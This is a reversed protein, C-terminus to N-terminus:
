VENKLQIYKSLYRHALQSNQELMVKIPNMISDNRQMMNKVHNVYRTGYEIDLRENIEGNQSPFEWRTLAPASLCQVASRKFEELTKALYGPFDLGDLYVGLGEGGIPTTVVPLDMSIADLIKGKVGAGFRLPALLVEYEAMTSFVDDVRGKIYFGISPNNLQEISSDMYAGYIHCETGKIGQNRLLDYIEPWLLYRLFHVADRNPAHKFNGIFIAHNRAEHNIAGLKVLPRSSIIPLYLLQNSPIAYYKQAYFYEEDSVVLSLDSRHMSVMERLAITNYIAKSKITHDEVYLHTSHGKDDLEELTIQRARRLGHLDETDLIRIANPCAKVVLWSFQEETPYRDFVIVDPNIQTLKVGTASNNPDLTHRYIGDLDEYLASYPGPDATSSLHLEFGKRHFLRILYDLRVGAASSEPEPWILCFFLIKM